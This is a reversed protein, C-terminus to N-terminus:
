NFREWDPDEGMLTPAGAGLIIGKRLFKPGRRLDSHLLPITFVLETVFLPPVRPTKALCRMEAILPNNISWEKDRKLDNNQMVKCSYATYRKEPTGFDFDGFQSVEDVTLVDKGNKNLYIRKYDFPTCLNFTNWPYPKNFNFTIPQHDEICHFYKLGIERSIQCIQLLVPPAKDITFGASGRATIQYIRRDEALVEALAEWILLRIETSIDFSQPM